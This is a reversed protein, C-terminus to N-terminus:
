RANGGGGGGGGGAATSNPCKGFCRWTWEVEDGAALLMDSIGTGNTTVGDDACSWCYSAGAGLGRPADFSCVLMNTATSGLGNVFIEQSRNGLPPIVAYTIVLHEPHARQTELMASWADMKGGLSANGVFPVPVRVSWTPSTVNFYVFAAAPESPAAGATAAPSSRM